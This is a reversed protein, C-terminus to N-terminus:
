RTVLHFGDSGALSDAMAHRRSQARAFYAMLRRNKESIQLATDVWIDAIDTLEEYSVPVARDVAGQFGHMGPALASHRRMYDMAAARAQGEHALVDIVGLDYLENATYIRHDMILRRAMGPTIKRLLLSLAGMGPFMGFSIEPFGFRARPEAVLVNASLAAEFGGGLAEGEVIAITTFPIDYHTATAYQIDVCTRAYRYLSERDGVEILEIFYSLDGGLNFVRRDTSALVQYLLRDNHGGHYEAQATERISHQVSRVDDILATTFCPRSNYKFEVWIARSSQDYSVDLHRLRRQLLDDYRDL